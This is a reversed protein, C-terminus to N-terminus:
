HAVGARDAAEDRDDFGRIDAVQGGRLTLVQWRDAAGDQASAAPNGSVRLGVLLKDAGVVVETVTARVGADRGRTYWALVEDRNHCGYQADDPPGWRADPALLERFATLDSSELASRVREAIERTAAPDTPVAAEKSFTSRAL